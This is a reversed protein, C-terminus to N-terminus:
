GNNFDRMVLGEIQGESAVGIPTASTLEPNEWVCRGHRPSGCEDGCPVLRRASAETEAIVVAGLCVDVASVDLAPKPKLLFIMM